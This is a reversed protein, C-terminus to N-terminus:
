KTWTGLWGLVEDHWQVSNQPKLVWHNEDPFYLFKSPISRRQLLTFAGIGQTQDIRYDRGGHVILMPKSWDKVHTFPNFQEYNEPKDIVTGGREWEDFWLEETTFGMSRTDVEGDHSVFCKFPANWTGAIWNVMFGGYSAGLACAKDGDLFKYKGLAAAWGKQLDELPRDGWHRSIADTFNQGYGTSGHFDIMVSAYGAGAYVQPNWRYHFDNAMSGQPGGHILFAVPYKKSPDFNAPKVVYGYVTEGNWGKFSFQEAKGMEVGKLADKNVNTLKVAKGGYPAAYLQAPGEITDHAYVLGNPGVDFAGVHGSGTLATVKGSAPDIAFVKHQGLDDSGTLLRKGDRSWVPADASRDWAPAVEKTEGTAVNRLMVGFRDAEFGPRKMATYALWKGDPSFAPAADWAKNAETLNEPKKSGDLPVAFLDFNTSWPETKGAVRASFVLTKGDPSISFDGDGGFPKTPADGDFGPMLAVPAGEAVGSANLKLAYLHNRTGDTWEDWHRVFLRDYVVGTTKAEEKAKKKAVTCAIDPCEPFVAQAIVLTKGDPSIKFAGVDLDAHTVQTATEGKVDTKFVQDRGDSRGSIFYISGDPAWRGNSAGGDSAKLRRSTRTKLDVIWLSHAAKNAAYDVTRLDYLAYRGDPSVRPDDIRDLTAMLKATFPAALAPSLSTASLFAAAVAALCSRHM